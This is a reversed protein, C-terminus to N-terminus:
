NGSIPQRNEDSVCPRHVTHKALDFEARRAGGPRSLDLTDRLVGGDKGTVLSAAVEEREELRRFRIVSGARKVPFQVPNRFLEMPEALRRKGIQALEIQHAFRPVRTELALRARVTHGNGASGSGVAM